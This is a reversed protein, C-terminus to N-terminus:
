IRELHDICSRLLNIIENKVNDSMKRKFAVQLLRNNIVLLMSLVSTVRDELVYDNDAM